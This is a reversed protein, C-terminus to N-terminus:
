PVEYVVTIEGDQVQHDYNADIWEVVILLKGSAEDPHNLLWMLAARTGFRNVGAVRVVMNDCDFLIAGYDKEGYTATYVQDKVRLTNDEFYVEYQEWPYPIVNPGGLVIVKKEESPGAKGALRSLLDQNFQIDEYMGRYKMEKPFGFPLICGEYVPAAVPITPSPPPTEREKFHAIVEHDRNMSFTLTLGSGRNSGDLEWHDFEFGAHATPNLSIVTGRDIQYTGVHYTHTDGATSPNAKITLTYQKWYVAKITRDDNMSFTSGSWHSGDLEWHDFRYGPCSRYSPSVDTGRYLDTVSDGDGYDGDPDPPNNQAGAPPSFDMHVTCGVPAGLEDRVQVDLDVLKWYVAGLTKDGDMTFSCAGTGSCPGSWHDFNYGSYSNPSATIETGIDMTLSDSNDYDGDSPINPNHAGAPATFSLHLSAGVSGGLDDEIDFDLTVQKWYVAKITIDSDGVTIGAGPDGSAGSLEWHDFRYGSCTGPSATIVTYKYVDRLSAGDAYWGSYDPAQEANDPLTFQLRVKCSSPMSAGDQDVVEVNVDVVKWFFAAAAKDETMTLTCDGTGTCDGTTHGNWTGWHDFVRQGCPTNPSLTITTGDDYVLTDGHYADSKGNNDAPRAHISCGSLPFGDEDGIKVELRWTKVFVATLTHDGDMTVTISTDTGANSGDLVWHDFRYGSNPSATVTVETGEDYTLTGDAGSVLNRGNVDSPKAKVRGADDPDIDIYLDARQKKLYLTAEGVSGKLKYELVGGSNRIVDVNGSAKWHDFDYGACEGPRYTFRYYGKGRYATQGDMFNGVLQYSDGEHEKFEVKVAKCGTVHRGTEVDKVHVNSHCASAQQLILVSGLLLLALGLMVLRRLEVTM